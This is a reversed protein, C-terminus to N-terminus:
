SRRTLRASVSSYSALRAPRLRIRIRPSGAVPRVIRAFAVPRYMRGKRRYRPCFDIVEIANGASDAHRTVLWFPDHDHNEAVALPANARAWSLQEHLPEWQGYAVPDVVAAAVEGPLIPKTM